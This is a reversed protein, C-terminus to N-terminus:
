TSDGGDLVSNGVMIFEDTSNGGDVENIGKSSDDVYKKNAVDIDDTPVKLVTGSKTAVNSRVAFDDLIGASKNPQPTNIRKPYKRILPNAM